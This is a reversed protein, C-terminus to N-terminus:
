CQPDQQSQLLIHHPGIIFKVINKFREVTEETIREEKIVHYQLSDGYLFLQVNKDRQREKIYKKFWLNQYRAERCRVPIYVGQYNM